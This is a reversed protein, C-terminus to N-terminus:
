GEDTTITIYGCYPEGRLHAHVEHPTSSESLLFDYADVTNGDEDADRKLTALYSEDPASELLETVDWESAPGADVANDHSDWYQPQFRATYNTM